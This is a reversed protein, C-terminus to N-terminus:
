GSFAAVFADLDGDVDGLAVGRSRSSGLRQGRDVFLRSNTGDEGIAAGFFTLLMVVVLEGVPLLGWLEQRAPM